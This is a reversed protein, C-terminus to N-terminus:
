AITILPSPTAAKGEGRTRTNRCPLSRGGMAELLGLSFERVQHGPLKTPGVAFLWALPASLGANSFAALRLSPLAWIQVRGGEVEHFGTVPRRAETM